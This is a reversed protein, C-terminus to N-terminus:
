ADTDDSDPDQARRADVFTGALSPNPTEDAFEDPEQNGAPRMLEPPLHTLGPQRRPLGHSAAPATEHHAPAPGTLTGTAGADGPWLPQDPDPRGHRSRDGRWTAHVSVVASDPVDDPSSAARAPGAGAVAAVQDVPAPRVDPASQHADQPTGLLRQPIVVHATIGGYPNPTLWVHVDPGLRDILRRVVWLGVRGEAGQTSAEFPESGALMQNFLALRDPEIGVGKDVVDIAVGVRVSQVFLTVETDDPSYLTANEVLEALLHVIDAAAHGTFSGEKEQVIIVRKYEQTEAIAASFVPWWPQADRFQHLPANTGALLGVNDAKRLMLTVLHDLEFLGNLIDPDEYKNMLQVLLNRARTIFLHQRQGLVALVAQQQAPDGAATLEAVREQSRTLEAALGDARETAVRIDGQWAAAASTLSQIRDQVAPGQRLAVLAAVGIVVVALVGGTWVAIVEVSRDAIVTWVVLAGLLAIVAAPTVVLSLIGSHPSDPATSVTSQYSDSPALRARSAPLESVM